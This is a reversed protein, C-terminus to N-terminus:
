RRRTMTFLPTLLPLGGDYFVLRVFNSYSTRNMVTNTGTLPFNTCPDSRKLECYKYAQVSMISLPVLCHRHAMHICELSCVDSFQGIYFPLILVYSVYRASSTIISYCGSSIVQTPVPIPSAIYMFRHGCHAAAMCLSELPFV